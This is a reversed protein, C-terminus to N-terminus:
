HRLLRVSCSGTRSTMKPWRRTPTTICTRFGPGSPRAATKVTSMFAVVTIVVVEVMAVVMTDIVDRTITSDSWNDLVGM